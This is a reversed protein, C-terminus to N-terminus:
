SACRHTEWRGQSSVRAVGARQYRTKWGAARKERNARVCNNARGRVSAAVGVRAGEIDAYDSVLQRDVIEVVAAWARQALGHNVGVSRRFWVENGEAQGTGARIHDM